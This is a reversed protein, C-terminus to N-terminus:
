FTISLCIKLANLKYTSLIHKVVSLVLKTVVGFTRNSSACMSSMVKFNYLKATVAQYCMYQTPTNLKKRTHVARLYIMNSDSSFRTFVSYSISCFPWSAILLRGVRPCSENIPMGYVAFEFYNGGIEFVLESKFFYDKSFSWFFQKLGIPWRQISTTGSDTQIKKLNGSCKKRSFGVIRSCIQESISIKSQQM